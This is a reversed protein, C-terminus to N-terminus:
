INVFWLEGYDVGIHSIEGFSKEVSLTQVFTTRSLAKELKIYRCTHQSNQLSTYEANHVTFRSRLQRYSRQTSAPYNPELAVPLLLLFFLPAGQWFISFAWLCSLLLPRSSYNQFINIGQCFTLGLCTLSLFLVRHWLVLTYCLSCFSLFNSQPSLLEFLNLFCVMEGPPGAIHRFFSTKVM